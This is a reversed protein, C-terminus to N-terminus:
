LGEGHFDRGSEQEEDEGGGGQGGLVTGEMEGDAIRGALVPLRLHHEVADRIRPRALHQRRLAHGLPQGIRPQHQHPLAVRIHIEM